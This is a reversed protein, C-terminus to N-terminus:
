GTVQVWFYMCYHGLVEKFPWFVTLTAVKARLSLIAWFGWTSCDKPGFAKFDSDKSGYPQPGPLSKSAEFPSRAEM